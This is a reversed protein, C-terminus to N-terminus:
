SKQSQEREAANSAADDLKDVPSDWLAFDHIHLSFPQNSGRNANDEIKLEEQMQCSTQESWKGAAIHYIAPDAIALNHKWIADIESVTLFLVKM